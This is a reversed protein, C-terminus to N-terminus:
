TSGEQERPLYIEFSEVDLNKQITTRGMDDTIGKICTGDGRVFEYPQNKLLEHTVHDRLVYPDDFSTQPLSNMHQAMSSPGQRSFAASKMTRDGRTGEEIGISSMRLYSGGCKFLLEEKAEIIVRGNVSTINLNQDALLQMADSQAQIDVKGKAAFLKIGLKQAFVSVLEGAAVTFRKMVGIDLHEGATAILNKAANLHLSDGTTIGAGDPASLLAVRARLDKLRNEILAKQTAADAALAQATQAADSLAQLQMQAQQLQAMAAQMDLQQGEAGPQADASIFV